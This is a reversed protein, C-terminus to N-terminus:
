GIERTGSFGSKEEEVGVKRKRQDWERRGRFGSEKEELWSKKKM